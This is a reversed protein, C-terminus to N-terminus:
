HLHDGAPKLDNCKWGVDMAVTSLPLQLLTLSKMSASVNPDDLDMATM